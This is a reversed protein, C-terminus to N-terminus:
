PKFQPIRWTLESSISTYAPPPPLNIKTTTTTITTMTITNRLDVEEAFIKTCSTQVFVDDPSNDGNPKSPPFFTQGKATHNKSPTSNSNMVINRLHSNPQNKNMSVVKQSFNDVSNEEHSIVWHFFVNKYHSYDITVTQEILCYCKSQHQLTMKLAEIEAGIKMMQAGHKNICNYGDQQLTLKENLM